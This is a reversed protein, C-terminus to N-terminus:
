ALAARALWSVAAALESTAGSRSQYSRTLSEAAALDNRAVLARVDNVLSAYLLLAPIVNKNYTARAVVGFTHRAWRRLKVPATAHTPAHTSGFSTPTARLGCTFSM